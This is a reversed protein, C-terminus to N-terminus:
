NEEFGEGACMLGEWQLGTVSAKWACLRLQDVYALSCMICLSNYLKSRTCLPMWSSTGPIPWFILWSRRWGVLDRKHCYTWAGNGLLFIRPFSARSLSQVNAVHHPWMSHVRTVQIYACPLASFAWDGSVPRLATRLCWITSIMCGSTREIVYNLEIPGVKMMLRLSLSPSRKATSCSLSDLSTLPTVVITQQLISSLLMSPLTAESAIIWCKTTPDMTVTRSHRTNAAIRSSPWSDLLGLM